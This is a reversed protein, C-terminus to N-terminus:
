LDNLMIGQFVKSFFFIKDFFKFIKNQRLM